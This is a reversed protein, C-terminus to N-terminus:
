GPAQISQALRQLLAAAAALTRPKQPPADIQPYTDSGGANNRLYLTIVHDDVLAYERDVVWLGSRDLGADLPSSLKLGPLESSLFSSGDGNQKGDPDYPVILFGGDFTGAKFGCGPNDGSFNGEGFVTANAGLATSVSDTYSPCQLKTPSNDAVVTSVSTTVASGVASPNSGCGALIVLGIFVAALAVTAPRSPRGHDSRGSRQGSPTGEASVGLRENMFLTKHM